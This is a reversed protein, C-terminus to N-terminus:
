CFACFELDRTETENELTFDRTMNESKSNKNFDRDRERLKLWTKTETEFTITKIEDSTLVNEVVPFLLPSCQSDTFVCNKVFSSTVFQMM